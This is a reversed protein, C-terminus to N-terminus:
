ANKGALMCLIPLREKAYSLGLRAVLLLCCCCAQLLMAAVTAAAVRLPRWPLPRRWWHNSPTSTAVSRAKLLLLLRGLGYHINYCLMSVDLSWRKDAEVWWCMMIASISTAKFLHTCFDTARNLKTFCRVCVCVCVVMVLVLGDLLEMASKATAASGRRRCCCGASPAEM